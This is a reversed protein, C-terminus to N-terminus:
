TLSATGQIDHALSASEVTGARASNRRKSSIRSACGTSPWVSQPIKARFASLQSLRLCLSKALLGARVRCPAVAYFIDPMIWAFHISSNAAPPEARLLCSRTDRAAPRWQIKVVAASIGCASLPRVWGALTGPATVKVEGGCNSRLLARWAEFDLQPSGAGGDSQLM